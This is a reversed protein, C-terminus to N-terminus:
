AGWFELIKKRSEDDLNQDLPVEDEFGLRKLFSRLRYVAVRIAEGCDECSLAPNRKRPKQRPPLPRKHNCGKLKMAIERWSMGVMHLGLARIALRSIEDRPRGRARGASHGVRRVAALREESSMEGDRLIEEIRQLQEAESLPKSPYLWDFIEGAEETALERTDEEDSLLDDKL